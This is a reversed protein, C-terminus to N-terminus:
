VNSAHTLMRLCMKHFFLRNTQKCGRFLHDKVGGTSNKKEFGLAFIVYSTREWFPDLIPGQIDLKVRLNDPVDCRPQIRSGPSAILALRSNLATLRIHVYHQFIVLCVKFFRATYVVYSKWLINPCKKLM